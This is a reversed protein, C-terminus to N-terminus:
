LRLLNRLSKESANPCLSKAHNLIAEFSDNPDDSYRSTISEAGFCIEPRAYEGISWGYPVGQKNKKFDFGSIILYTQMLLQTLSNEFGEKGALRKIDCTLIRLDGVARMIRACRAPVLGEDFRADFDYGDRRYNAFIPFMELSVFGAKRSFLKSYILKGGGALEMRWKWPDSDEGTWWQNETLAEVSFDDIGCNFYPLFGIDLVLSEVDKACTLKKFRM